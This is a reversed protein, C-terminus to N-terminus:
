KVEECFKQLYEAFKEKIIEYRFDQLRERQNEIIKERLKQNRIVRDMAGAVLVPDKSELLLGAGGLTSPIASSNYAVIPVDFIMSEVLPVCFGEHESLCLFLDAIKYYALIEDFRIHGTFFFM